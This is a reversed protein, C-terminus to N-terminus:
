YGYAEVESFGIEFDQNVANLKIYRYNVVNPFEIYAPAMDLQPYGSYSGILNYGGGASNSGYVKFDIPKDYIENQPDNFLPAHDTRVTARVGKISKSTGLDVIMNAIKGTGRWYVSDYYRGDHLLPIDASTGELRVYNIPLKNPVPSSLQNVLKSKALRIEAGEVVNGTGDAAMRVYYERSIPSTNSNGYRSAIAAVIPASFSTGSWTVLNGAADTSTIRWGPAWIDVCPGVTSGGMAFHAGNPDEQDGANPDGWPFNVGASTVGGVVMIGDVSAPKNQFNYAYTCASKSISVGPAPYSNGASETVMLRNSAMRLIRGMAKSYYFSNQGDDNAHNSSVNLVANENAAEADIMAYAVGNAPPFIDGGVNAYLKVPQGPNIGKLFQGNDKGSVLSLIHSIHYPNALAQGLNNNYVVNWDTKLQASVSGYPQDVIYMPVQAGMGNGANVYGYAWQPEIPNVQYNKLSNKSIFKDYKNQIKYVLQMGAIRDDRMIKGSEFDSLYVYFSTSIANVLSTEGFKYNKALEGVVSNLEASVTRGDEDIEIREMSKGASKMQLAIDMLYSPKVFIEYLKGDSNEYVSGVVSSSSVANAQACAFLSVVMCAYSIKRLKM